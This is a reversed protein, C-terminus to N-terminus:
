SSVCARDSTASRMRFVSGSSSLASAACRIESRRFVMRGPYCKGRVHGADREIRARLIVSSPDSPARSYSNRLRRSRDRGRIPARRTM